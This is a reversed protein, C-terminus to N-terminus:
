GTNIERYPPYWSGPISSDSYEWVIEKLWWMTYLFQHFLVGAPFQQGAKGQQGEGKREIRDMKGDELVAVVQEDEKDSVERKDRELDEDDREEDVLNQLGPLLPLPHLFEVHNDPREKGMEAGREERGDGTGVRVDGRQPRFNGPCNRSFIQAKEVLLIEFRLWQGIILSFCTGTRFSFFDHFVIVLVLPKKLQGHM